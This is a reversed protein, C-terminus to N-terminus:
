PTLMTGFAGKQEFSKIVSEELPTRKVASNNQWFAPDYTTRKIAALDSEGAKGGAYTAGTPTFQGDYYSVLSTVEVPLDAKLLRGLVVQYSVQLYEPVAGGPTSRFGFEARTMVDKYTFTPNNTKLKIYSPMNLRLRLIQHTAEDITIQGSEGSAAPGPKCAFAIEGLQLPGNDTVSLLRLTYAQTVNLSIAGKFTTSDAEPSFFHLTKAFHSFDTFSLLAKKKAFRGQVLAAGAAGASSTKADWVMEQVETPDGGHRTIQRYFARGYTKQGRSRRLERYAQRILEETYSGLQVEPLQVSAPQLRVVLVPAATRVAVTDRMHGLDSVVLRAPLPPAPLDFEGEANATTGRRTNLVSVSAYPVPQGSVADLVKGTLRPQAGAGYNLGILLLSLLYGNLLAPM